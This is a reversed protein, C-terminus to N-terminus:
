QLRLIAAATSRRPVAAWTQSAGYHACRRFRKRVVIRAACGHGYVVAREKHFCTRAGAFGRNHGSTDRHHEGLADDGLRDGGHGEGLQRRAFKENAHAFEDVVQVCNFNWDLESDSQGVAKGFRMALIKGGAYCRDVFDGARGNVAEALPQDFGVGDFGVDIRARGHHIAVLGVEGEDLDDLGPEPFLKIAARPLEEGFHHELVGGLCDPQDPLDEGVQSM